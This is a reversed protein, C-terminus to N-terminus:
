QWDSLSLINLNKGGIKTKIPALKRSKDICDVGLLNLFRVFLPQNSKFEIKASYKNKDDKSKTM